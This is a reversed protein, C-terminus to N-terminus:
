AAGEGLDLVRDFGSVLRRDHTVFILAAGSKSQADQLLDMFRQQNDADLASTPEDAVILEPAGLLARAAAVRQRQGVSLKGAPRDMLDAADLDMASLLRKTEEQVSAGLRKRRAASFQVGLAVNQAVTAFPLLNHEQFILGIHEGRLRDLAGGGLTTVDQGFLRLVGSDPRLVGCLLDLLTSKGSGSSGLVALREGPALAFSPVHLEFGDKRAFRLDTAEILPNTM